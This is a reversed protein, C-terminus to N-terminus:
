GREDLAKWEGQRLRYGLQAAKTGRREMARRVQQNESGTRPM